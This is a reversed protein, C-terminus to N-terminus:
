AEETQKINFHEEAEEISSFEQYGNEGWNTVYHGWDLVNETTGDPREVTGLKAYIPPKRLGFTSAAAATATGNWQAAVTWGKAEANAIAALVEEDTQHDIHIGITLNHGGSTYTPLSNLIRLVSSKDLVTSHFMRVGNSLSPLPYEFSRLQRCGKFAEYGNTVLSLDTTEFTLLPSGDGCFYFLSTVLPMSIKIHEVTTAGFMNSANILNPADASFAKIKRFSQFLNKANELKPLPYIWEGESTLDNQYDANVAQMEEVTTCATYKNYLESDAEPERYQVTITWGKDAAAQLIAPVGSSILQAEWPLSVTLKGGTAPLKSLKRAQPLTFGAIFQLSGSNKFFRKSIKDYVGVEGGELCPIFDRIISDDQTIQGTYFRSNWVETPNSSWGIRITKFEIGNDTYVLNKTIDDVASKLRATRNNKYNLWGEALINKKTAVLYNWKGGYAYGTGFSSLLPPIYYNASWNAALSNFGQENNNTLVHHKWYLGTNENPVIATDIYASQGRGVLFEAALYGAPLTQVGRGLGLLWRKVPACKFNVVQSLTIAEDSVVVVPAQAYFSGQGGEPVTCCPNVEGKVTVTAGAPGGVIYWYGVTIKREM